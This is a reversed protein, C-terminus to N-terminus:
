CYREIACRNGREPTSWERDVRACVSNPCSDGSFNVPRGSAPVRLAPRFAVAKASQGGSASHLKHLAFGTGRRPKPITITGGM